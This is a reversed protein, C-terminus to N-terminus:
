FSVGASIKNSSSLEPHYVFAYDLALGRWKIGLGLTPRLEELGFRMFLGRNYALEMGLNQEFRRGNDFRKVLDFEFRFTSKWTHIEFQPALGLALRPLIQERYGNDWIVPSLVVDRIALGLDFYDFHGQLGVDLGGGFGKIVALNRYYLKLNAGYSIRGRGKSYNLFLLHDSASVTDYPVPRNTESLERLTDALRTLKINSVGLYYYAAGVAGNSGPILFSLYDNKVVGGFNEAHMFCVSRRDLLATGAPNYYLSFPDASQAVFATAMGLARAGVGLEQFDGAYKSADGTGASFVVLLITIFRIRM